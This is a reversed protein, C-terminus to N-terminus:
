NVLRPPTSEDDSTSIPERSPGASAGADELNAERDLPGHNETYWSGDRNGRLDNRRFDGGGESTVAIGIAGGRIHNGSFSPNTGKDSIWVGARGSGEVTNGEFRGAAGQDLIVGERQSAEIINDTVRPTAGAGRVGCGVGNGKLKNGQVMPSSTGGVGIGVGNDAITNNSARGGSDEFFVGAAGNGEIVCGQVRSAPVAEGLLVGCGANGSSTCREVVLTAGGMAAIGHDYNDRVQTERLVLSAHPGGVIVPWRHGTVRCDTMEARGEETVWLANQAGDHIVCVDILTRSSPGGSWVTAGLHSSLDCDIVSVQVNHVAIASHDAGDNGALAPRITLGSVSAGSAAFGMAEGGVPELLIEERPGEGRISVARDVVVPKHYTGPRVVITDGDEAAEIAADIEAFASSSSPDVILVAPVHGAFPAAPRPRKARSAPGFSREEYAVFPQEDDEQPPLEAFEDEPYSSTAATMLWPLREGAAKARIAGSGLFNRLWLVAGEDSLEGITAAPVFATHALM